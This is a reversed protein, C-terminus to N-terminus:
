SVAVLDRVYALRYGPRAQGVTALGVVTPRDARTNDVTPETDVVFTAGSAGVAGFDPRFRVTAGVAPIAEVADLERAVEDEAHETDARAEVEDLLTEVAPEPRMAAVKSLADAADVRTRYEGMLGVGSPLTAYWRDDLKTVTGLPRVDHYDTGASAVVYGPFERRYRLTRPTAPATEEAVERAVAERAVTRLQEERVEARGAETLVYEGSTRTSYVVEVLSRATLSKITATAPRGAPREDAPLAYFALAATQLPSLKM